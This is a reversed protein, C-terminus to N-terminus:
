RSTHKKLSKSKLKISIFGKVSTSPSGNGRSILPSNSSVRGELIEVLPSVNFKRQWKSPDETRCLVEDM